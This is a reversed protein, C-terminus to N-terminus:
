NSEAPRPQTSAEASTGEAQRQRAEVHLLRAAERAESAAQEARRAELIALARQMAAEQRLARTHSVMVFLTLAGGGLILLALLAAVILLKSRTRGARVTLVGVEIFLGGCEPCRNGTSGTLDYRCRGCAPGHPTSRRARVILAGAVLLIVLLAPVILLLIADHAKSTIV